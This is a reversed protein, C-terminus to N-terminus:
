AGRGGDGPPRSLSASVDMPAGGAGSALAAADGADRLVVVVGFPLARSFAALLARDSPRLQPCAVQRELVQLQHRLVLIEIEKARESRMRLVFLELLRRLLWYLFSLVVGRSRGVVVASGVSVARAAVGYLGGPGAGPPRDQNGASVPRHPPKHELVVDLRRSQARAEWVAKVRSTAVIFGHGTRM